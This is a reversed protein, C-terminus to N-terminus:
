ILHTLVLFLPTLMYSVKSLSPQWAQCQCQFSDQEEPSVDKVCEQPVRDIGENLLLPATSSYYAAIGKDSM